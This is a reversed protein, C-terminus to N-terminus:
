SSSGEGGNDDNELLHGYKAIVMKWHKIRERAEAIEKNMARMGRPRKPFMKQKKNVRGEQDEKGKNSSKPARKRKKAIYRSFAPSHCQTCTLFKRVGGQVTVSFMRGDTQKRKCTNCDYNQVSDKVITLSEAINSLLEHIFKYTMESMMMTTARTPTNVGAKSSIMKFSINKPNSEEAKSILFRQARENTHPATKDNEVTDWRGGKGILFGIVTSTFGVDVPVSIPTGNVKVNITYDQMEPCKRLTLLNSTFPKYSYRLYMTLVACLLDAVMEDYERIPNPTPMLESDDLVVKELVPRKQEPFIIGWMEDSLSEDTLVLYHGPLLETSTEQTCYTTSMQFSLSLPTHNM